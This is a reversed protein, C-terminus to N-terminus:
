DVTVPDKTTVDDWLGALKEYCAKYSTTPLPVTIEATPIVGNHRKDLQLGTAVGGVKFEVDPTTFTVSVDGHKEAYEPAETIVQDMIKSRIMAEHFDNRYDANVKVLEISLGTPLHKEYVKGLDDNDLENLQTFPLANISEVIDKVAM